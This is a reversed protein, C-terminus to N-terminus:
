HSAMGARELTREKCRILSWNLKIIQRSFLIQHGEYSFSREFYSYYLNPLYTTNQIM